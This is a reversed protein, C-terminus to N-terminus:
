DPNLHMFPLGEAPGDGAGDDAGDDGDAMTPQALAVDAEYAGLLLVSLALLKMKKLALGKASYCHKSLYDTATAHSLM